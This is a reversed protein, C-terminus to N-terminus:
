DSPTAKRKPLLLPNVVGSAPQHSQQGCPFFNEESYFLGDDTGSMMDDLGLEVESDIESPLFNLPLLHSM